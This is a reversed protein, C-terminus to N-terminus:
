NGEALAQEEGAELHRPRASVGLLLHPSHAKHGSFIIQPTTQTTLFDEIIVMATIRCLQGIVTQSHIESLIAM